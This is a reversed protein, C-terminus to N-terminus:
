EYDELGLKEAVRVFSEYKEDTFLKLFLEAREENTLQREACYRQLYYLSSASIMMGHVDLDLQEKALENIKLLNSVTASKSATVYCYYGPNRGDFGKYGRLYSTVMKNRLGASLQFKKGYNKSDVLILTDDPTVAMIDIDENGNNFNSVPRPHMKTKLGLGDLVHATEREFELNDEEHRYRELFADNNTEFKKAKVQEAVREAETATFKTSLEAVLDRMSLEEPSPYKSLVKHAKMAIKKDRTAVRGNVHQAKYTDIDLGANLTYLDEDYFIRENFPYRQCFKNFEEMKNDDDIGAIGGHMPKAYETFRCLLSLTTAVDRYKQFGKRSDKREIDGKETFIKVALAEKKEDSLQRYKLIEQVKIEYDDDTVATMAFLTIEDNFIKKDLREDNVLKLLFIIPQIHYGDVYDKINYANPIQWVMIQKKVNEPIKVNDLIMRSVKTPKVRNEGDVYVFGYFKLIACWTRGGSGSASISGGKVGAKVLLQEYKMQLPRNGQWQLTFNNTAEKLAILADEIVMPDRVPRPVFWFQRKKKSVMLVM